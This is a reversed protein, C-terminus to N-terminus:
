TFNMGEIAIQGLAANPRFSSNAVALPSTGSDVRFRSNLPRLKYHRTYSSGALLLWQATPRTALYLTALTVKKGNM